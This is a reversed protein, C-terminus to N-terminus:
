KTRSGFGCPYLPDYDRDGVNIPQQALTRLWAVRLKGHQVDSLEGCRDVLMEVLANRTGIEVAAQALLVAAAYREIGVLERANDVEDVLCLSATSRASRLRSETAEPRAHFSREPSRV